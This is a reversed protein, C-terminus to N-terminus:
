IDVKVIEFPAPIYATILVQGFLSYCIVLVLYSYRQFFHLPYQYLESTQTNFLVFLFLIFVAFM